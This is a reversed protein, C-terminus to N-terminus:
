YFFKTGLVGGRWGQISGPVVDTGIQFAGVGGYNTFKLCADGSFAQEGPLYIEPYEAALPWCYEPSRESLGSLGSKAPLLEYINRKSVAAVYLPIDSSAASEILPVLQYGAIATGTSLRVLAAEESMSSPSEYRNQKEFPSFNGPERIVLAYNGGIFIERPAPYNDLRAARGSGFWKQVESLFGSSGSYS